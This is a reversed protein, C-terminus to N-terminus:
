RKVVKRKHKADRISLWYVPAARELIRENEAKFAQIVEVLFRRTESKPEANQIDRKLEILEEIVAECELIEEQSYSSVTKELKEWVHDGVYRYLDGPLDQPVLNVHPATIEDKTLACLHQSGNNSGDIYAEFGSVYTFVEFCEWSELGLDLAMRIQHERIRRIELCAALFQWPKDARMWGQNVKPSEAYSLLIEENDMAWAYRDELPIKDTKLGDERGADGAWNSAATVMLWWFGEKGVEAGNAQRLFSRALDSGQEHLYATTPYKRGRFDFYYLHYFTKGLFRKAVSGIAKAERLKTAKADPNQQEWIDAFADTKNRLAWLHIDYLERDIVWGIKQAANVCNFVIPHTHPSLYELVEKSGTKVLRAGTEHKGSTWPSYPRLSPLKEVKDIALNNFMAAIADDNKVTVVFQAHKGTGVGLSVQILKLEEFSYLMFAGCKAAVGSDRKMGLSARIGHGIASIVEVLYISPNNTGKKPRTYMYVSSIVGDIYSEIDVDKLFKLPSQVALEGKIRNSLSEILKSRM